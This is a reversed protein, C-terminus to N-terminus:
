EILEYLIIPRTAGMYPITRLVNYDIWEVADNHSFNKFKILWEVMKKYSYILNGDYTYGIIADAYNCGKFFSAGELNNNLLIRRIEDDSTNGKM